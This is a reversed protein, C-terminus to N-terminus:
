STLIDELMSFGFVFLIESDFFALRLKFFFFVENSFYPKCITEKLFMLLFCRGEIGQFIAQFIAHHCMRAM